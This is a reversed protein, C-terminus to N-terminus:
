APLYEVGNQIIGSLAIKNENSESFGALVQAESMAGTQLQDVWFDFGGQEAPRDLINQYLATVFADTSPAHGYLSAFESSTIFRQSISELSAGRDFENIWYGLGDLDPARNFAAEYLRYAQAANEDLAVSKDTFHIREVSDLYIGSFSGDPRTYIIPSTAAGELKASTTTTNIYLQDLGEGGSLRVSTNLTEVSLTFQDDFYSGATYQSTVAIVNASAQGGASGYLYQLALVDFEGLHNSNGGDYSMITHKATAMEAPLYPGSDWQSYEGPHKLGLAHATEHIALQRGYGSDLNQIQSVTWNLWVNASTATLSMEGKSVSGDTLTQGGSFLGYRLIGGEAVHKFTIGVQTSIESLMAEIATRQAPNLPKFDRVATAPADMFSYSIVAPTGLPHNMALSAQPLKLLADIRIDGTAM